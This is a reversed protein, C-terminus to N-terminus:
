ASEGVRQVRHPSSHHHSRALLHLECPRHLTEPLDTTLATPLGEEASSCGVHHAPYSSSCDEGDVVPHFYLKLFPM